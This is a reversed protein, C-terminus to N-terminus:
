RMESESLEELLLSQSGQSKCPVYGPVKQTKIDLASVGASSTLTPWGEFGKAGAGGRVQDREREQDAGCARPCGETGRAEAGIDFAVGFIAVDDIRAINFEVM